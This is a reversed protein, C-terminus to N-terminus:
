SLSERLLHKWRLVDIEWCVTHERASAWAEPRRRRVVDLQDVVTMGRTLDSATEVEILHRSSRTCIGPELAIAMAVPDPLTLAPHGFARGAAAIASRNCDIAFEAAPTGIARLSAIEDGDLAAAGRCLEWGAM